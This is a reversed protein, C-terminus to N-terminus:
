KGIVGVALRRFAHAAQGGPLTSSQESEFRDRKLLARLYSSPTHTGAALPPKELQIVADRAPNVAVLVSNSSNLRWGPPFTIALDLERNLFQQGRM